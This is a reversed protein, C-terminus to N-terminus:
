GILAILDEKSRGGVVQKVVEGNKFVFFAPISMIGYKQALHTADDVNVKGVKVKGDLEKAVEEVIPGMMQCPGCWTAWFDVLVPIDSKIVEQEFNNENLELAMTEEMHMDNRNGKLFVVDFSM